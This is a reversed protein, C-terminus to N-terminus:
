LEIGIAAFVPAASGAPAADTWVADTWVYGLAGSNDPVYRRAALGSLVAYRTRRRLEVDEAYPSGFVMVGLITVRAGPTAIAGEIQRALTAPAHLPDDTVRKLQQDPTERKAPRPVVEFPDQWLRARVDQEGIASAAAPVTEHPRASELPLTRVLVGAALLAVAM